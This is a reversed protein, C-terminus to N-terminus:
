AETVVLAGIAFEVDDGSGVTKSVTLAGVYIMDGASVADMIGVHTVTGWSATATPFTVAVSNSVSGGSITGWTILQRVYAGGSVEAAVSGTDTPDATFLALYVSTPATYGFQSNNKLFRDLVRDELFDTKTTM